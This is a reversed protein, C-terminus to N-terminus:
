PGELATSSRVVALGRHAFACRHGGEDDSAQGQQDNSADLRALHAHDGPARQLDLGALILLRTYTNANTVLFTPIATLLMLVTMVVHGGWPDAMV